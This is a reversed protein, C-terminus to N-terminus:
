DRTKSKARSRQLKNSWRNSATDKVTIWTRIVACAFNFKVNKYHTKTIM